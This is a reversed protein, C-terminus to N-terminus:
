SPHRGLPSRCMSCCASRRSSSVASCPAFRCSTRSLKCVTSRSRSSSDRWFPASRSHSAPPRPSSHPGIAFFAVCLTFLERDRTAVIRDLTWRVVLRGGLVLVAMVTIGLGLRSWVGGSAGGDQGGFVPVLLMLPVIALDQFLLISIVERGPASDLEGRDAYSRTVVATSSMAVLAGYFLGQGLGLDTAAGVGAALALMGGMQLGGSVLLSTAWQLVRSLSLELGIAFLLLVVGIEGVAQVDGDDPILAVGSPGIVVGVLLFGVLPPVRVRHALAVVPIALGVIIALDRLIELDHM